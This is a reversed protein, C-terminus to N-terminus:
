SHLPEERPLKNLLLCILDGREILFAILKLEAEDLQNAECDSLRKGLEKIELLSEDIQSKLITASETTYKVLAGQFKTEFSKFNVQLQEFQTQLISVRRSILQTDVSQSNGPTGSNQGIAKIDNNHKIKFEDLRQYIVAFKSKCNEENAWIKSNLSSNMQQRDLFAESRLSTLNQKVEELIKNNAYKDQTLVAQYKTFDTQLKNQNKLSNDIKGDLSETIQFMKKENELIKETVNHNTVCCQRVNERLANIEGEQFKMVASFSNVKQDLREMRISLDKFIEHFQGALQNQFMDLREDIRDTVSGRSTVSRKKEAPIQRINSNETSSDILYTNIAEVNDQTKKLEERNEQMSKRMEDQFETVQLLKDHHIQSDRCVSKLDCTKFCLVPPTISLVLVISYVLVYM